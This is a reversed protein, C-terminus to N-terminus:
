SNPAAEQPATHGANLVATNDYVMSISYLRLLQRLVFVSTTCHQLACYTAQQSLNVAFFLTVHSQHIQTILSVPHTWLATRVADKFVYLEPQVKHRSTYPKHFILHSQVTETHPGGPVGTCSCAGMVKCWIMPCLPGAWRFTYTYLSRIPELGTVSWIKDFRILRSVPVREAFVEAKGVTNM